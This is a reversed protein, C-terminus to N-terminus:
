SLWRRRSYWVVSGLAVLSAPAAIAVAIRWRSSSPEATELPLPQLDADLAIGGVPPTKALVEFVYAAGASTAGEDEGRAGVVATDGQLAVYAFQDGAQADSATLKAVQGWNDAGGEDRQFVYAGGTPDSASGVIATDSDLSVSVGFVDGAQADSATLKKVEGWNDAGGEDRQFIYVAGTNSDGSLHAGVVAADGSVSVSFGFLDVPGGDSAVLKKVEGWKDPGGEDRYFVYAAGAALGKEDEGQAGVIAIDDSLAVIGFNDTAEIDASTIKKVQGWNDLGGENREFVYAAGAGQSAANDGSGVFATDGSVAVSVGFLDSNNPDSATLKKVEGWNDAGGQDRQFVYAAGALNGGTDVGFAGLVAVDESIAM